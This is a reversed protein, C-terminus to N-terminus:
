AAAELSGIARVASLGASVDDRRTRPQMEGEQQLLHLQEQEEQRQLRDLQQLQQQQRRLAHPAMHSRDVQQQQRKYDEGAPATLASDEAAAATGTAAAAVAPIAAASIAPESPAEHQTARSASYSLRWCCDWCVDLSEVFLNDIQDEALRQRLWQLRQQQLRLETTWSSNSPPAAPAAAAAAASGGSVPNATEGPSACASPPSVSSVLLDGTALGAASSSSM